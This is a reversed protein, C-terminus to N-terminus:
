FHIPITKSWAGPWVELRSGRAALCEQRDGFEQFLYKPQPSPYRAIASIPYWLLLLLLLLVPVQVLVLLLLYVVFCPCQLKVLHVQISQMEANTHTHTHAHYRLRVLCRLARPAQDLGQHLPLVASNPCHKTLSSCCNSLWGITGGAKCTEM